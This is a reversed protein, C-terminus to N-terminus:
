GYFWSDSHESVIYKRDIFKLLLVNNSPLHYRVDEKTDPEPVYSIPSQPCLASLYQRVAHLYIKAVHRSLFRKLVEMGLEGCYRDLLM